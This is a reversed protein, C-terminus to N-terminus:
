TYYVVKYKAQIREDHRKDPLERSSIPRFDIVNVIGQSQCREVRNEHGREDDRRWDQSNGMRSEHNRERQVKEHDTEKEHGAPTPETRRESDCM